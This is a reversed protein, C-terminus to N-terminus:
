PWRQILVKYIAWWYSIELVTRFIFWFWFGMFGLTIMFVASEVVTAGRQRGGVKRWCEGGVRAVNKGKERARVARERVAQM